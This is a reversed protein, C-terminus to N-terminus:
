SSAVPFRQAVTGQRVAESVIRHTFTRALRCGVMYSLEGLAVARIVRDLGDTEERCVDFVDQVLVATEPLAAM